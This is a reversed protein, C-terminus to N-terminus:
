HTKNLVFDFRSGYHFKLYKKRSSIQDLFIIFELFDKNNYFLLGKGWFLGEVHWRIAIHTIGLAIFFDPLKKNIDETEIDADIDQIKQAESRTIKYKELLEKIRKKSCYNNILSQEREFDEEQYNVETINSHLLKIYNDRDLSSIRKIERNLEVKPFYISNLAKFKRM